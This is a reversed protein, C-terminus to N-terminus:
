HNGKRWKNDASTVADVLGEDKFRKRQSDKIREASGPGSKDDRFLDIDLVM